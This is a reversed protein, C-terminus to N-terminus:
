VNLDRQIQESKLSIITGLGLVDAVMKGIPRLIVRVLMFVGDLIASLVGFIPALVLTLLLLISFTALYGFRYLKNYFNALGNFCGCSASIENLLILQNAIPIENKKAPQPMPTYVTELKIEDNGGM